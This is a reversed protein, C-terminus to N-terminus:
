RTWSQYKNRRPPKIVNGKFDPAKNLLLSHRHNGPSLFLARWGLPNVHIVYTPILQFLHTLFCQLAWNKYVWFSDSYVIERDILFIGVNPKGGLCFEGFFPLRQSPLFFFWGCFWGVGFVGWFGWGGFCNFTSCSSFENLSWRWRSNYM